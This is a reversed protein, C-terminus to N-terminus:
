NQSNNDDDNNKPCTPNKDLTNLPKHDQIPPQESLHKVEDADCREKRQKRVLMPMPMQVSMPMRRPCLFVTSQM